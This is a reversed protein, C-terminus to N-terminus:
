GRVEVTLEVEVPAGLPLATVGIASRAHRGQEGFLDLLLLSAGNVVGPQGTFGPESAVYGVVRVVSAIQDPDDLISVVAALCNVMSIRAAAQAQEASIVGRSPDASEAVTGTATLVGNVLPLQGSTLVLAGTRRAPVYAALPAAPTPLTLGLDALRALLGGPTTM